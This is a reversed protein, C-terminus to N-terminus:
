RVALTSAPVAIRMARAVLLVCGSAEAASAPVVMPQSTMTLGGPTRRGPSKPKDEGEVGVFGIVVDGEGFM